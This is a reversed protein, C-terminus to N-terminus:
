YNQSQCTGSSTSPGFLVQKVLAKKALDNEQDFAALQDALCLDKPISTHRKYRKASAKVWGWPLKEILIDKMKNCPKRNYAKFTLSGTVSDVFLVGEVRKSTSNFLKDMVDIPNQIIIYKKM